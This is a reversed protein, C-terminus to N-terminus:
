SRPEQLAVFVTGYFYAENKVRSLLTVGEFKHNTLDNNLITLDDYFELSHTMM